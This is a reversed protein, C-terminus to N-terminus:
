PQPKFASDGAQWLVFSFIDAWLQDRQSRTSGFGHGAEFDIRLLVAEGSTTSAAMRAAYKAGHFTATHPDNLGSVVLTAPYPTGPRINNYPDLNFMTKFTAADTIPGGWEPIDAMNQESVYRVPNMFGVNAIAGTFLDPRANVAQGATVGGASTGIISMQAPTTAKDRILAEAVDITDNWSNAKTPGRGAYHWDRGFEGGGRVHAMVYSGGRDLFPILATEFRPLMAMGYNGFAEILLPGPGQASAGRRSILTYPIRTGDRAIASLARAEYKGPDYGQPASSLNMQRLGGTPALRYIESPSLWSALAIFAEGTRESADLIRASGAFPMTVRTAIGDETVQWLGNQAGEVTKVLMARGVPEIEDIVPSGPIKVERASALDARALPTVLLKGNPANRTTKVWLDGGLAAVGEIQEAFDGVRHWVPKGSLLAARGTLFLMQERRGDFVYLLATDTEKDFDIRAFDTPALKVPAKARELLLRDSGKSGLKHLKTISNLYYDPTGHQGVFQLYAFGSSDPLWSVVGFDTAPIKVPLLRGTATEIVHLVSAETGRESLGVAVYRGSPSPTWWDLAQGGGLVAQPDILIREAQTGTRVYLKPDEAGRDRRLVFLSRGARRVMDVGVQDGSLIQIDRLLGARGPLAALVAETHEAQAKLWPLWRPDKGSEMWRYPDDIKTGYYDDTVVEAAAAPPAPTSAAASLPVLVALSGLLLHPVARM